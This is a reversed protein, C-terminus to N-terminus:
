PPTYTGALDIRGYVGATQTDPGGTFFLTNTPQNNVGNGFVISWLGPVFLQKGSSLMLPGMSAGTTANYANIAGDGFNGILLAGSMPGFNSPAIAVGWPANLNGQSVLTSILTGDWNFVAVYGLGAGIAVRQATASPQAYTVYIQATGSSNPINQVNYPAYGAPIASDYFNFGSTVPSFDSNFVDIKANKFDAAYLYYNGNGDTAMTLGTFIAGSASNYIVVASNANVSQNWGEISGGLTAFIFTAPDSTGPMDFGSTSNYVIGTPGATGSSGAPITVYAPPTGSYGSSPPNGNGDYLASYNSGADAIWAYATPSFALGWANVLKPDTHLASIASSNAVLYTLMYNSQPPPSPPPSPPSSMGSSGGGGCASLLFLAPVLTVISRLVPLACALSLMRRPRM